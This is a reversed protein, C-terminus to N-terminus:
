YISKSVENSFGSENGNSDYATVAFYYTSGVLLNTLAYSTLNGVSIPSGYVRSSTGVYVKYGALDTETNPGWTLSATTSTGSSPSTLTPSTTSGSTVTLTVPVAADGGQSATIMVTATYSGATLGATNISVVIQATTTLTGSAPSVNLWTANDSGSWSVQRSSKGKKFVNVTRSPPNTGGQAAQFTLNTPSVQLAWAESLALVTMTMVLGTIWVFSRKGCTRPQHDRNLHNM